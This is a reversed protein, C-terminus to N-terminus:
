NRISNWQLFVQQDSQIRTRHSFPFISICEHQCCCHLLINQSPYISQWLAIRRSITSAEIQEKSLPAKSLYFSTLQSHPSNVFYTSPLLQFPHRLHVFSHNFRVFVTWILTFEILVQDKNSVFPISSKSRLLISQNAILLLYCQHCRSNENSWNFEQHNEFPCSIRYTMQWAALQSAAWTGIVNWLNEDIWMEDWGSMWSCVVSYMVRHVM